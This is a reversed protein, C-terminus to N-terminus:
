KDWQFSVAGESCFYLALSERITEANKKYMNSGMRPTINVGLNLQDHRWQGPILNGSIDEKDVYDSLCYKSNQQDSMLWNHLAVIAKTASEV